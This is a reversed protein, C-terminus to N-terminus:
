LTDALYSLLRPALVSSYSGPLQPPETVWYHGAGPVVVTRTFAGARRTAAAFPRSQTAPDVVEDQDGWVVLFAVNKRRSDAYSMPSAQIYAMRDDLLSVGMLLESIRAPRPRTANDTVWQAALDYVGYIGVVSKVRYLDAPQPRGTRALLGGADLAALAALHAGASDGMLGIREPDVNLAAANQRTYAIAALVDHAAGPWTPAAPTALRYDIAVVTYGHSALFPGWDKYFSSDGRNWGGGHVAILAPAPKGAAARYVTAPFSPGDLSPIKLAEVAPPRAAPKSTAPASSAPSPGLIALGLSAAAVLALM